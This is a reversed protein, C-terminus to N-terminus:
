SLLIIQATANIINNGKRIYEETAYLMVKTGTAMNTSSLAFSDKNVEMAYGHPVLM